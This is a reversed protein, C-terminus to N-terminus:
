EGVRVVIKGTAERASLARFGDAAQALPLIRSVTPAIRGVQWLDLLRGIQARFPGPNRETWNGWYVGRAQAARLLLLNAKISPIGATFGIVLYRGEWALARLAPEAYPGGLPDFVVDAGQPGVAKKLGDALERAQPGDDLRRPYVLVEDAGAARVVDAKQESSVAGVVRAGLAKGIEVAAIGVGGAAGLVLLTEGPKLAGHDELAHFATGYTVLLGAAAEFPLAEPLQFCRRHDLLAYAALGGFGTGFVRDGPAFGEVDPGVAEVLGSMEAGPVFPRPLKVQYRDEIMLADPYNLATAVVRVLLQGPGPVPMPLETLELTEPGGPNRSLLALM